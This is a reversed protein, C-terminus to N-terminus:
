PLSLKCWHLSNLETERANESPKAKYRCGHYNYYHFVDQEYLYLHKEVDFRNKTISFTIQFHQRSQHCRQPHFLRKCPLCLWFHNQKINKFFYKLYGSMLKRVTLENCTVQLM